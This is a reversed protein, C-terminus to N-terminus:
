SPPIQFFFVAQDGEGAANLARARREFEALRGRGFLPRAPRSALSRPDRLPVDRRYQESGWFQFGTSDHLLRRRQFGAASALRDLSKCSHLFLHRPADLQVWDVGYERWASSDTVPIRILLWGGPRVLRQLHGFVDQQDPMHELSHHLMVLDHTGAHEALGRRHIRLGGGLDLDAAIFPDIGQLDRFGDRRLEQLLEGAGCGVDLISAEFGLGMWALWELRPTTGLLRLLVAGLPDGGQLRARARSGKLRSRLGEWRGPGGEAYAYYDSPYYRSPDAPPDTLQVCGCGACELYTFVDRLGFMMERAEHLRNGEANGCVACPASM